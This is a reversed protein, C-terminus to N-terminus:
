RGTPWKANKKKQLNALTEAAASYAEGAQESKDWLSGGDFYGPKIGFKKSYYNEMLALKMELLKTAEFDGQYSKKAAESVRRDISGLAKAFDADTSLQAAAYKAAEEAPLGRTSFDVLNDVSLKTGGVRDVVQRVEAQSASYAEQIKRTDQTEFADKLKASASVTSPASSQSTVAPPPKAAAVAAPDPRPTLIISNAKEPLQEKLAKEKVIKKIQEDSFGSQKLIDISKDPNHALHRDARVLADVQELSPDIDFAVKMRKRFYDDAGPPIKIASEGTIGTRMLISIDVSTFGCSKLKDKKQNLDSQSLLEEDPWGATAATRMKKGGGISHAQLICNKETENLNKGLAKNAADTREAATLQGNKALIKELEARQAPDKINALLAARNTRGVISLSKVFPWVDASGLIADTLCSSEADKLVELKSQPEPCINESMVEPKNSFKALETSEGLCSTYASRLGPYMNASALATTTLGAGRVRNVGSMGKMVKLGGAAVAGLGATAVVIGVDTVSDDIIAKTQARDLGRDVLCKEAEIYSDYERNQKIKKDSMDPVDPIAALLKRSDEFNCSSDPNVTTYSMCRIHKLSRDYQKKLAERNESFYGTIKKKIVDENFIKFWDSKNKMIQRVDQFHNANQLWPHETEIRTIEVQILQCAEPKLSKRDCEKKAKELKDIRHLANYTKRILQQMKQEPTVKCAKNKLAKYDKCRKGTTPFPFQENCDIQDLGNSGPLVSDIYALEDVLSNNYGEFKEMAMYYRTKVLKDQGNPLTNCKSLATKMSPSVQKYRDALYQSFKEADDLTTKQGSKQAYDQYSQVTASCAKAESPFKFVKLTSKDTFDDNVWDVLSKPCKNRDHQSGPDLAVTQRSSNGTDSRGSATEAFLLPSYVTLTFVIAFFISNTMSILKVICGVNLTNKPLVKSINM